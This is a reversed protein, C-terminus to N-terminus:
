VKSDTIAEVWKERSAHTEARFHYALDNLSVDFRLNDFEHRNVSAHAVDMTGRCMKDKEEASKYYSLVGKALCVHRDQWGQIYNTWKSLTGAMHPMKVADDDDDDHEASDSPSMGQAASQEFHSLSQVESDIGAAAILAQGATTDSM